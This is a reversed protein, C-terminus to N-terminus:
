GQGQINDRIFFSKSSAIDSQLKEMAKEMGEDTYVYLCGHKGAVLHFVNRGEGRYRAPVTVQNKVNVKHEYESFFM